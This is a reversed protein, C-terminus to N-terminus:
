WRVARVVSYCSRCRFHETSLVLSVKCCTELVFYFIFNSLM